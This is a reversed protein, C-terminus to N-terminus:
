FIFRNRHLWIQWVAQPFVFKWPICPQLLSEHSECNNKIWDVSPTGFFNQRADDIGLNRWVERAVSCDRLVHIISKMGVEYLDCTNDLNFGRLGLVEKTPISSYFCLWLFFKLRSFISVEMRLSLGFLFIKKFLIPLM